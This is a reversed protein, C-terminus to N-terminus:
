SKQTLIDIIHENRVIMMGHRDNTIGPKLSYTYTPRGDKMVTPLYVYSINDCRKKLDEGAEIIHTSIMFICNKKEAFAEMVALTAEHADKVNTGRFLEDFVIVLNGIRGVQEAVKKLRQVEAYFHSYGLMMNDPLNITTYMGNQVSFRMKKVPLPFGMHALYVVIGFTKMFTSKGAMNAGTLFVVNHEADAQISNPIANEILPHFMGEIELINGGLPLAEAFVFGRERAVEAISIYADIQYLYRLIKLILEYGEYRLLNDYKSTRAYSLKTKGNEEPTWALQPAAVLQALEKCEQAYPNNEGEVQALFGRVTNILNIGALVGKLVQEFEMDGGVCRKMRRQLTNDEPMLRSREDRNALYGELADFWENQFDFRVNVQEFEMDGGVCRKMRRQLTNDEPMLRSREDRNALYGELADFWENQFDFRVNKDMFYRIVTSRHNIREADSLPYHFMEELLQAGGRTRTSNFVGYVSNGRVKGFINLDNITQRDIIFAM